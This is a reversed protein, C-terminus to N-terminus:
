INRKTEIMRWKPQVNMEQYPDFFINAIIHQFCTNTDVRLEMSPNIQGVDHNGLQM